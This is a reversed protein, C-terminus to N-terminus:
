GFKEATGDIEVRGESTDDLRLRLLPNIGIAATKVLWGEKGENSRDAPCSLVRFRDGRQYPQTDRNM